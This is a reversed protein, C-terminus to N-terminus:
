GRGIPIVPIAVRFLGVPDGAVDEFRVAFGHLHNGGIQILQEFAFGKIGVAPHNVSRPERGQEMLRSRAHLEPDTRQLNDQRLLLHLTPMVRLGSYEVLHHLLAMACAEIGPYDLLGVLSCQRFRSLFGLKSGQQLWPIGIGEASFEYRQTELLGPLRSIQSAHRLFRLAYLAAIAAQFGIMMAGSSALEALTTRMGYEAEAWQAVSVVGIPVTALVALWLAGGFPGYQM